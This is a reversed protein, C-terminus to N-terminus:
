DFGINYEVFGGLLLLVIDIVGWIVIPLKNKMIRVGIYIGVLGIIMNLILVWDPKCFTYFIGTNYRYSLFFQASRIAWIINIVLLSWGIPKYRNNNSTLKSM